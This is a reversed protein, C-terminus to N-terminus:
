QLGSTQSQFRSRVAQDSFDTSLGQSWDVRCPLTGVMAPDELFGRPQHTHDWEFGKAQLLDDLANPNIGM